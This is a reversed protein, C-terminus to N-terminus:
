YKYLHYFKYGIQKSLQTDEQTQTKQLSLKTLSETHIFHPIFIELPTTFLLAKIFLSLGFQTDSM